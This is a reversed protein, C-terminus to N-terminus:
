NNKNLKLVNFCYFSIPMPYSTCIIDDRYLKKLKFNIVTTYASIVQHREVVKYPWNYDFNDYTWLKNHDHMYYVSSRELLIVHGRFVERLDIYTNSYRYKLETTCMNISSYNSKFYTSCIIQNFTKCVLQLPLLDIIRCKLLIITWLEKDLSM